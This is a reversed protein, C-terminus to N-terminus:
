DSGSEADLEPVVADEQSRERRLRRIRAAVDSAAPREELRVAETFALIAQDDDVHAHIVAEVEDPTLGVYVTENPARTLTLRDSGAGPVEDDDCFRRVVVNPGDDCLGYCGGRLLRCRGDDQGSLTEGARAHVTNAGNSTCM